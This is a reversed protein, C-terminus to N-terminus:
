GSGDRVNPDASRASAARAAIGRLTNLNYQASEVSHATPMLQTQLRWLDAQAAYADEPNTQSTAVRSQVAAVM